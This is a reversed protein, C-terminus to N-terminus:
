TWRSVTLPQPTLSRAWSALGAESVRQGKDPLDHKQEQKINTQRGKVMVQPQRNLSPDYSCTYFHSRGLTRVAPPLGPVGGLVPVRAVVRAAAAGEGLPVVQLGVEEVM